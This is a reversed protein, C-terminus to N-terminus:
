LHVGLKIGFTRPPDLEAWQLNPSGPLDGGVLAKVARDEINRIWAGVYWKDNASSYTLDADSKSYGPQQDTGPTYSYNVWYRTTLHTNLAAVIKADGSVVWTHKYGVNGSWHPSYIFPEGSANTLGFLFPYIFSQYRTDLFEVSASVQDNPTALYAASLDFGLDTGHGANADTPGVAAGTGGCCLAQPFLFVTNIQQNVYIYYFAEFNVILSHDLLENKTGLDYYRVQEPGYTANPNVPAAPTADPFAGFGGVKYGTSENAYVISNPGLDYDLGARWTVKDGGVHFDSHFTGTGAPSGDPDDNVTYAHLIKEDHTYRAGGTIHLANTLSYTAQLFGAYSADTQDPASTTQIGEPVGSGVVPFSQQVSVYNPLTESLGYLGAQWKLKSGNSDNSALRAELTTSRDNIQQLFGFAQDNSYNDQVMARYSPFLTLTAFGLNIDLQTYVGVNRNNTFANHPILDTCLAGPASCNATPSGALPYYEYVKWPIGAYFGTGAANLAVRQPGVGGEHYYDMGVLLSVDENPKWLAKVRGAIDDADDGDNGEIYGNHRVDLFAGRVALDSNVAVNVMGTSQFLSYNGAQIEASSEDKQVPNNSIVNVAGGAANRGYLTGQPGQLVEVRALDYFAGNVGIPLSLAQGDVSFLVDPNSYPNGGTSGIGRIFLQLAGNQSAMKVGPVVDTLDAGSNIGREKLEGASIASIAIPVREINESLHEATVVVEELEEPGEASAAHVTFPLALAGMMGAAIVFTLASKTSRSVFKRIHM